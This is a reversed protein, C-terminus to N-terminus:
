KSLNQIINIIESIDNLVFDAKELAQQTVAQGTTVLIKHKVKANEGALLDEFKDGIIFSYSPDINLDKIAQLLMEPKPKRCPCNEEPKHICYYIGDLVVGFDEQLSWDMWETLKLFEEESFYGRGIGSQNTVIVLLYNLDQLAKLTKGVNKFFQFDELRHVYGHDFNLTGDRDLFIAKRKM